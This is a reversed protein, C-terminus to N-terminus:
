PKQPPSVEPKSLQQQLISSIGFGGGKVINESLSDTLFHRYFRHGESDENFVGKFMPKLADNLFQKVLLSEFQQSVVVNKDHLSSKKSHVLEKLSNTDLGTYQPQLGSTQMIM